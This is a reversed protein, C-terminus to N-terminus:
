YASSNFCGGIECSGFFMRLAGDCLGVSWFADGAYAASGFGEAACGNRFGSWLNRSESTNVFLNAACKLPGMSFTVLLDIFRHDPSNNM